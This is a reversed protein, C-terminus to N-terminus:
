VDLPQSNPSNRCCTYVNSALYYIRYLIFQIPGTKLYYNTFIFGCHKSVEYGNVTYHCVYLKNFRLYLHKYMNFYTIYCTNCKFM